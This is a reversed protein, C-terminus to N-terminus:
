VPTYSKIGGGFGLFRLGEFGVGLDQFFSLWKGM